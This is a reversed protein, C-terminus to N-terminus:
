SGGYAQILRRAREGVADALMGPRYLEGGIGFGDTGAARWAAMEAAGVGGVAYLKVDAPMVAKLAQLHGPGCSGAPFLKLHRAGAAIARFAETATAFGPMVVMNRELARGIVSPDINPTVILRGGAKAVDDVAQPTLVTGAGILCKDGHRRALIGISALPDPSNLPVEILRWGTAVLEDGIGAVEAPTIGRLIAVLPPTPLIM